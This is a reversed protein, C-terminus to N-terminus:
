LVQVLPIQIELIHHLGMQISLTIEAMAKLITQIPLDLGVMPVKEMLTINPDPTATFKLRALNIMLQM